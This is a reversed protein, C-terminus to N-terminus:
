SLSTHTPPLIAFSASIHYSIPSVIQLLLLNLHFSLNCGFGKPLIGYAQGPGLVRLGIVLLIKSGHVRLHGAKGPALRSKRPFLYQFGKKGMQRILGPVVKQQLVGLAANYPFADDIFDVPIQPFGIEADADEMGLIPALAQAGPSHPFGPVNGKANQLEM